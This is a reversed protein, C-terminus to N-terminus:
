IIIIKDEVIVVKAQSDNIIYRVQHELLSPYLPVLIAGLFLAAYDTLAWELRNSSILAIKDGKKIGAAALGAATKETRDVAEKFNVSIWQGKSKYKYATHSPFEQRKSYFMEALNKYKM